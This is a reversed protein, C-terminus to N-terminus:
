RHGATNTVLDGFCITTQFLRPLLQSVRLGLLLTTLRLRTFCTLRALLRCLLPLRALRSLLLWTLGPLWSLLLGTLLPLRSLLPLRFRRKLLRRLIELLRGICQCLRGPLQLLWSLLPLRTLRASLLRLLRALIGWVIGRIRSVASFALSRLRREIQCTQFNFQFVQRTAVPSTQRTFQSCLDHLTRFFLRVAIVGPEDFEIEAFNGFRM